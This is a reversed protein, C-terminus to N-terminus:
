SQKLKLALEDLSKATEALAKATSELATKGSTIGVSMWAIGVDKLKSVITDANLGDALAAAPAEAPAATEAALAEVTNLESM